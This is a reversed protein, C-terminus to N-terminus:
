KHLADEQVIQMKGRQAGSVVDPSHETLVMRYGFSIYYADVTDAEFTFELPITREAGIPRPLYSHSDKAIVTGNADSLYATITLQGYWSTWEPYLESNPLANGIVGVTEGLDVTSYQFRWFKMDIQSNETNGWTEHALHGM